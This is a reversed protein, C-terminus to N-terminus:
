ARNPAYNLRLVSERFGAKLINKYSHQPDGKVEEGTETFVHKCGLESALTLRAAMIAAQSGRQRFDPHTAGWELWGVNGDVFLTGAGAPRDGDYSAFLKWREDNALGALLPISQDLMGFAGCVIIGFDKCKAIGIREVRLTTAAERKGPNNTRFKMWGRKKVFKEHNLLERAGTTLTDDYIHIFYNRINNSAYIARVAEISDASVPDETGLGLTRNILISPDGASCAVIGDKAPVLDLGNAHRVDSPCCSHLSELALREIRESLKDIQDM